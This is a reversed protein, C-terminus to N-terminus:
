KVYDQFVWGWVNHIYYHKVASSYFDYRVPNFLPVVPADAMMMRDLKSYLSLRRSRNTMQKLMHAFKDVKPNCYWPENFTGPVASACSLVPEFFDNPDPFDQFWAEYTIPVKARTGVLQTLTNGNVQKFKAHIGVNLLMPIITQAIRPDDGIDDSYFTTSFGHAYGAKALLARAKAPNYPYLNFNGYGPMNPPLFTNTVVGRGSIIRVLLPKNIAYNVAQRVLKNNFPKILTNLPIYTLAVQVQKAIQHKYKPDHITNLFEASPIGDGAIDAQGRQTRLFSTNQDVGFNAEITAVHGVNGGWYHPNKVLILRQGLVHQKFMYPGTGMPHQADYSKGYRQIQARDVVAGFPMALVNLFSADASALNIRLGFKGATQIGSVHKAKGKAYAAAGAVNSWFSSAGAQTAPNIIREFSYKWDASTALKGNWFHINHRLKFTYTKGANTITPMSTAADPIISDGNGATTNYGVLENYMAKMFPYCETDYCKGTDLHSLDDKFDIVLTGHGATANRAQVTWPTAHLFSGGAVVLAVAVAIPRATRLNM